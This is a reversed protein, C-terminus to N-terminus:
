RRSAAAEIECAVRARFCEFTKRPRQSTAYRAAAEGLLRRAADIDGIQRRLSAQWLLVGAPRGPDIAGPAGDATEVAAAFRALALDVHRRAEATAADASAAPPDQDGVSGGRPQLRVLALLGLNAEAEAALMAVRRNGARHAAVVAGLDREADAWRDAGAISQCLRTRGLGFRAKIEIDNLLDGPPAMAAQTYWQEAETLGARDVPRPAACGDPLVCGEPLPSAEPADVCAGHARQFALEGLYIHALPDDGVATYRERAAGLLEEAAGEDGRDAAEGALHVATKGLFLDVIPTGGASAAEADRAATFRSRAEVYDGRAYAFLGIVFHVLAVNRPALRADLDRLTFPNGADGPVAIDAGFAHEGSVRIEEDPAGDDQLYFRPTVSSSPQGSVPDTTEALTGFVVLNAGSQEALRDVPWLWSIRGTQTPPMIGVRLDGGDTAAALSALRARLAGYVEASRGSAIPQLAGPEASMEAVAIRFQGPIPDRWLFRRLDQPGVVLAAASLALALATAVGGWPVWRRRTPRGPAAADGALRLIVGDPSRLYCVPVAMDAKRRRGPRQIARRAFALAQDVPQGEALGEYVERAFRVAVDDLVRAQMGVVAPIGRGLLVPAFGQAVRFASSRASDCANLFVLRVGHPAIEDALQEPSVLGKAPDSPPADPEFFLGASDTRPDHEGHGVFHFVHFPRGAAAAARLRDRVADLTAHPVTEVVAHRRGRLKELAAGIGAAEPWARVPPLGAPSATAVLVRLPPAVEIPRAPATVTLGRVVSQELALFARREPDYLLEWPIRAVAPPDVVLRFRLPREDAPVRDYARRLDGPAFLAEFLRAGFARVHHDDFLGQELWALAEDVEGPAFPDAFVGVARIDDPQVSVRVPYGPPAAPSEGPASRATSAAPTVATGPGTSPSPAGVHATGGGAARPPEGLIVEFTRADRPDAPM